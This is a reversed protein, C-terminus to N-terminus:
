RVVLFETSNFLTWLLDQCGEAPTAAGELFAVCRELEAESPARVLAALYLARVREAPETHEALVRGVTTAPQTTAPRGRARQKAARAAGEDLQGPNSLTGNLLALAAPISGQFGDVTDGDDNGLDVVLDEIFETRARLIFQRRRRDLEGPDGATSAQFLAAFTQEPSLQRVYARAYLETDGANDASVASSRQYARTAMCLLLFERLAFQGDSLEEGLGELLEPHTPQNQLSVDDV